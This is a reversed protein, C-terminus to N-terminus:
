QKEEWKKMIELSNGCEAAKEIATMEKIQDTKENM